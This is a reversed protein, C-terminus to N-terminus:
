LTSHVCVYVVRMTQFDNRHLGQTTKLAADYLKTSEYAEILNNMAYPLIDASRDPSKANGSLISDIRFDNQM